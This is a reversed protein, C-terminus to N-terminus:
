HLAGRTGVAGWVHPGAAAHDLHPCRSREPGGLSTGPLVPNVRWGAVKRLDGPCRGGAGGAATSLSNGRFARRVGAGQLGPNGGLGRPQGPSDASSGGLLWPM